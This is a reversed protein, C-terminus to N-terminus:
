KEGEEEGDDEGEEYYDEEGEDEEDEEGYDEEGEEYEGDEDEEDEEENNEEWTTTNPTTTTSTTTFPLTTTFDKATCRYSHFGSTEYLYPTEDQYNMIFEDILVSEQYHHALCSIFHSRCKDVEQQEYCWCSNYDSDTDTYGVGCVQCCSEVSDGPNSYYWM